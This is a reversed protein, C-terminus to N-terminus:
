LKASEQEHSSGETITTQTLDSPQNRCSTECALGSGAVIIIIYEHVVPEYVNSLTFSLMSVVILARRSRNRISEHVYMVM